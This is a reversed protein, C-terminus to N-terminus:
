DIGQFVQALVTTAYAGSLLDFKFRWGGPEQTAVLDIPRIITAREKATRVALATDSLKTPNWLHRYMKAVWESKNWMQLREPLREGSKVMQTLLDNWLKSKWKEVEFEYPRRFDRHLLAAEWTGAYKKIRSLQNASDPHGSLIVEVAGANDGELLLRGIQESGPLGFRQPGFLNLIEAPPLTIETADSAVFIDFRNGFNRGRELPFEQGYLYALRIQSHAFTPRFEGKVCILQSTHARRDKRGHFSIRDPSINLQGAVVEIAAETTWNVKSLTFVTFSSGDWDEMVSRDSFSIARPAQDDEDWVLEQVIFDEPREKIRGRPLSNAATM